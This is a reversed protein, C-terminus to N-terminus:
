RASWRSSTRGATVGKRIQLLGMYELSRLAEKLTQKGVQFQEMLAAETPLRDGPSLRGEFIMGRIQSIIQMSAKNLRVANFMDGAVEGRSARGNM